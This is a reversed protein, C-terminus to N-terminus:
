KLSIEGFKRGLLSSSLVLVLSEYIYVRYMRFKSVGISRLIGIEKTQEYVNTYM